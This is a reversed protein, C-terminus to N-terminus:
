SAPNIYLDLYAAPNETAAKFILDEPICARRLVAVAESLAISSGTLRGERDRFPRGGRGPGKVSDSVLLIRDMRKLRFIMQLTKPHLHFGDAIVETYLDEDLLALGAIGPERHHFPRMANFIHTIGTAGAEKGRLAEGYSADSHGMNIRIGKERSREIIKLAGPMEPAVTMIKIIDEFGDTLRKLNSLTARLFYGSDLSGCKSPNLFPGELHVGTIEAPGAAAGNRIDMAKRVAEIQRRMVPIDAPYITPLFVRTGARGLARSVRLVEEPNDTRTDHAGIGHTHLDIFGKM